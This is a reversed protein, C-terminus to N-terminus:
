LMGHDSMLIYLTDKIKEENTERNHYERELILYLGEKPPEKIGTKMSETMKYCEKIKKRKEKDFM